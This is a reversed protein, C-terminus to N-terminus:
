HKRNLVGNSTLGEITGQLLAYTVQPNWDSVAIAYRQQELIDKSPLQNPDYDSLNQHQTAM